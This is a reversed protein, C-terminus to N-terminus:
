ELLLINAIQNKDSYKMPLTILMLITKRNILLTM